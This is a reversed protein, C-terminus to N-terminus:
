PTSRCTNPDLQFLSMINVDETRGSLIAKELIDSAWPSELHMGDLEKLRELIWLRDTASETEVGALFLSSVQAVLYKRDRAFDNHAIQMIREVAELHFTNRPLNSRFLRRHFLVQAWYASAACRITNFVRRQNSTPPLIATNLIDQYKEGIEVIEKWLGDPTDKCDRGEIRAIALEWIKSRMVFTQHLAELPRYNELDDLVEDEPYDKWINRGCRRADRYVRDLQLSPVRSQSMRTLLSQSSLGQGGVADIYSIWLLMQSSLLSLPVDPLGDEESINGGVASARRRRSNMISKECTEFLSRVGALHMRLHERSYGFKVEYDLMFLLATLLREMSQTADRGDQLNLSVSLERVAANYHNLGADRLQLSSSWPSSKEMKHMESASIALIMRMLIPDTAASKEYIYSLNSWRWPKLYGVVMASNPYFELCRRDRPSLLLSNALPIHETSLSPTISRSYTSWPSLPQEAEVSSNSYLVVTTSRSSDSPPTEAFYPNFDTAPSLGDDM